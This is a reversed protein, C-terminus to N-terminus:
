VTQHFDALSKCYLGYRGRSKDVLNEPSVRPGPRQHHVPQPQSEPSYRSSSKTRVPTSVLASPSNQFTSTPPQPPTQSPVQNRAFDQTIIQQSVSFFLGHNLEKLVQMSLHVPPWCRAQYQCTGMETCQPAWTGMGCRIGAEQKCVALQLQHCSLSIPKHLQHIGPEWSAASGTGLLKLYKPM